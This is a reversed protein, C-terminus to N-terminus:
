PARRAALVPLAAELRGPTMLSEIVMIAGGVVGARDGLQSTVIRLDRTALPLSRQIVVERLGALLQEHVTGIDGGVVIVRPNFFNVCAALVEGLARGADRVMRVALPDGDLVLQVVDRSTTAARGAAALRGALAHGGAVAELCGTNGCRCPVDDADSVVIHGIDGAAGEAGRHIRGENVIGCGIGTGVKVYLMHAVSRWAQWHEGLAMINVDNDVLVPVGPLRAAFWGPIDFDDWGPMIPPSVPRGSGFAVPGPIGIGVGAVESPARGVAGLLEEFRDHVFGLVAEPGDAIVLDHAQEARPEGALDTVAFRSHTAGLDATLAVGADPNFALLGPRRGGTSASDGAEHILGSALLADVRQAVTSRALGTLEALAARTVGGEARIHRLVVGIGASRPSPSGPPMGGSYVVGREPDDGMKRM